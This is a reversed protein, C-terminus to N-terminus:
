FLKVLILQFVRSIIALVLVLCSIYGKLFWYCFLTLYVAIQFAFPQLSQSTM